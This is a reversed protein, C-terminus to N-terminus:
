RFGRSNMIEGLVPAAPQVNANRHDVTMKLWGFNEPPHTSPPMLQAQELSPSEGM